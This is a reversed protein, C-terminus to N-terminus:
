FGLLVQNKQQIRQDIENNQFVAGGINHLIM